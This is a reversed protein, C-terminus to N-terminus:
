RSPDFFVGTTRFRGDRFEVPVRITAHEPAGNPGDRYIRHRWALGTEDFGHGRSWPKWGDARLGQWYTGGAALDYRVIRRTESDVALAISDVHNGQGDYHRRVIAFRLGGSELRGSVSHDRTAGGTTFFVPRFRGPERARDAVILIAFAPDWGRELTERRVFRVAYLRHSGLDAVRGTSAEVDDPVPRWELRSPESRGAEVVPQPLHTAFFALSAEFDSDIAVTPAYEGERLDPVFAYPGGSDAGATAAALALLLAALVRATAVRMDDFLLRRRDASLTLSGTEEWCDRANVAAPRISPM